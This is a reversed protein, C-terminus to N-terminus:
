VNFAALLPGAADEAAVTVSVRGEPVANTDAVVVWPDHLWAPPVTVQKSPLRAAPPEAVMMTLTVAGVEGARSVLWAAIEPGSFSGFGPLLLGDAVVSACFGQVVGPTCTAPSAESSGGFLGGTGSTSM